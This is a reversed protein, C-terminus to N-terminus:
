FTISLGGTVQFWQPRFQIPELRQQVQALLLEEIASLPRGDARGWTVTRESFYFYRGDGVLAVKDNFPIRLMVGGNFGWRSQGEGEPQIIAAFPLTTIELQQNGANLATVGLAITQRASFKFDPLYSAGGSIGFGFRGPTQFKLNFSVPTLRDVDVAGTGLELEANIPPFPPLSVQVNYQAGQTQIDVSATDVRAELAVSSVFYYAVGFGYASGGKADLSFVGEQRISVGPIPLTVPGPDYMFTQSYFPFTVGFNGQIEFQGAAAPRTLLGVALLGAALRLISPFLANKMM